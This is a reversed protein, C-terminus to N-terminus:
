EARRHAHMQFKPPVSFENPAAEFPVRVFGHEAMVRDYRGGESRGPDALITECTPNAHRSIFGAIAHAHSREYLLDSGIILDYRALDDSLDDWDTRVFPIRRDGNLQTNFELMEQARPHRDTATIDAGRANLVLSALGLGCGFEMIRRDKLEIRSMAAALQLGSPWLVGFLPWQASSIGLDRSAEDSSDFEQLDRLSRVHIDLGDGFEVTEFRVRCAVM